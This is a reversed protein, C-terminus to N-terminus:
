FNFHSRVWQKKQEIFLLLKIEWITQNSPVHVNCFSKWLTQFKRQIAVNNFWTEELAYNWDAQESKENWFCVLALWKLSIFLCFETFVVAYNPYPNLKLNEQLKSTIICKIENLRQSVFYTKRNKKCNNEYFFCFYHFKLVKICYFSNLNFM